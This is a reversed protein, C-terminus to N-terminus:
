YLSKVLITQWTSERLKTNHNVTEHWINLQVLGVITNEKYDYLKALRM